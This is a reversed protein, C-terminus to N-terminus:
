ITDGYGYRIQQGGERGGGKENDHATLEVLGIWQRTRVKIIKFYLNKERAGGKKEKISPTLHQGNRNL